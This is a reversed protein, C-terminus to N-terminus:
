SCDCDPYNSCPMFGSLADGTCREVGWDGPMLVFALALVVSAVVAGVVILAVVM